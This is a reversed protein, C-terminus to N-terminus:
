SDCPLKPMVPREVVRLVTHSPCQCASFQDSTDGHAPSGRAARPHDWGSSDRCKRTRAARGLDQRGDHRDVMNCLAPRFLTFSLYREKVKNLTPSSRALTVLVIALLFDRLERAGHPGIHFVPHQGKTQAHRDLYDHIVSRMSHPMGSWLRILRHKSTALTASASLRLIGLQRVQRM